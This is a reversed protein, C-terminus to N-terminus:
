VTGMKKTIEKFLNTVMEEDKDEEIDYIHYYDFDTIVTEGRHTYIIIKSNDTEDIKDCRVILYPIIEDSHYFM